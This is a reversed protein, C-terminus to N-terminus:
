GTPRRRALHGGRAAGAARVVRVQFFEDLNSGFIALFESGSSCPGSPTRALALVRDNFDLWSLERNLFRETRPSELRRTVPQAGLDSIPMARVRASLRRSM